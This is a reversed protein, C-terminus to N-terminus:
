MRPGHEIEEELELRRRKREAEIQRQLQLDENWDKKHPIHRVVEREGAMEHLEATYRAGDADNDFGAIIEAGRHKDLLAQLNARTESSMKETTSVYLTRDRQPNDLDLQYHSM